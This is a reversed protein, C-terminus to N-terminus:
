TEVEFFVWLFPTFLFGVFQFKSDKNMKKVEM